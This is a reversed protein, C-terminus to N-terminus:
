MCTIGALNVKTFIFYLLFKPSNILNEILNLDTKFNMLSEFTSNTRPNKVRSRNPIQHGCLLSFQEYYGFSAVHFIQSNKSYPLADVKIKLTSSTKSLNSFDLVVEAWEDTARDSCRREGWASQRQVVASV